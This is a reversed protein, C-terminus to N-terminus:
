EEFKPPALLRSMEETKRNDPTAVHEGTVIRKENTENKLKKAMAMVAEYGMKVPDQLVIGHVSGTELGAVLEANPDFAVFKVKGSLELEELAKLVGAANPECVAFIGDVEDRYKNLVGIAKEQSQKLETGAYENEVLINVEPYDQKLTELFGREREETSESGQNYRLLIVDGQGGMAKVLQDAALKGGHYNNTAVYTVIKSEDDLGSDFIVVPIKEEAAEDVYRILASSDLPALCIGDVQQTIFDRVVNIQGQRDNEKLPGKWLIEVNGLDKAAKEAGFHVSKWFEHTTGKPIVAIRLKGDDKAKQCGIPLFSLAALAVLCSTWKSRM